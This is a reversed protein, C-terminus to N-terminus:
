SVGGTNNRYNYDGNNNYYDRYGGDVVTQCCVKIKDSQRSCGM